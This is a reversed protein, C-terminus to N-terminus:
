QDCTPEVINSLILYDSGEFRAFFDASHEGRQYLFQALLSGSGQRGLDTGRFRGDIVQWGSGAAGEAAGAVEAQDAM